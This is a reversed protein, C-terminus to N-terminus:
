PIPPTAQTEPITILAKTTQDWTMRFTGPKPQNILDGAITVQLLQRDDDPVLSWNQVILSHQIGDQFINLECGIPDACFMAPATSCSLKASDLILAPDEPGLLFAQTVADAPVKLTGGQATCATQHYDLLSQLAQPRDQASVPTALALLLAARIM